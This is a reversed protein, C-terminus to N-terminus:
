VTLLKCVTHTPRKRIPKRSHVPLNSFSYTVFLSISVTQIFVPDCSLEILVSEGRFLYNYDSYRYHLINSQNTPIEEIFELFRTFVKYEACSSTVQDRRRDTPCLM